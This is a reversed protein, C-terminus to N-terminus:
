SRLIKILDEKEKSEPLSEIVSRTQDIDINNSLMYCKARELKLAIKRGDAIMQEVENELSIDEIVYNAEQDSYGTKQKVQVVWDNLEGLTDFKAQVFGNNSSELKQEILAENRVTVKYM